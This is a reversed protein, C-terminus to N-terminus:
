QMMKCSKRVIIPFQEYQRKVKKLFQEMNSKINLKIM